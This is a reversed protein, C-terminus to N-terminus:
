AAGYHSSVGGARAKMLRACRAARCPGWVMPLSLGNERRTRLLSRGACTYIVHGSIPLQLAKRKEEVMNATDAQFILWLLRYKIKKHELLHGSTLRRALKFISTYLRGIILLFEEVGIVIPLCIPFCVCRCLSSKKLWYKVSFWYTYDYPPKIVDSRQTCM